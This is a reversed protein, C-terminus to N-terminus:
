EVIEYRVTSERGDRRILLVLEGSSRMANWVHLFEEPREISQGNVRRLTDGPKLVEGRMAPQEDFFGVLRWGIFRGGELHPKTKLKRLFQGAGLELVALVDARALKGADIKEPLPAPVAPTEAVPEPAADAPEEAGATPEPAPPESPPAEAACATLWAFVALAPAFRFM